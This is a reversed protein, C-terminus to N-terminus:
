KKDGISGLSEGSKAKQAVSVVFFIEDGLEMAFCHSRGRGNKPRNSICTFHRFVFKLCRLLYEVVKFGHEKLIFRLFVNRKNRNEFRESWAWDWKRGRGIKVPLIMFFATKPAKCGNKSISVM